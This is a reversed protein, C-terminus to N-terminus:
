ALCQAREAQRDYLIQIRSPHLSEGSEFVFGDHQQLFPVKGCGDPRCQPKHKPCQNFHCLRGLYDGTADLLFIDVQHSRWWNRTRSVCDRWPRM